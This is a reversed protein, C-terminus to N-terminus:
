NLTQSFNLGPQVLPRGSLVSNLVFRRKIKYLSPDCLVFLCFADAVQLKNGRSPSGYGEQRGGRMLLGYSASSPYCPM